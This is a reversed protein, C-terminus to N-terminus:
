LIVSYAPTLSNKLSKEGEKRERKRYIAGQMSAMRGDETRRKRERERRERERERRIAECADRTCNLTHM